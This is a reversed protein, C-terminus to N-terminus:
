LAAIHRGKSQPAAISFRATRPRFVKPSAIVRIVKSRAQLRGSVDIGDDAECRSQGEHTGLACHHHALGRSTPSGHGIVAHRMLLDGREGHHGPSAAPM